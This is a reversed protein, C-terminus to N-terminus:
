DVPWCKVPGPVTKVVPQSTLLVEVPYGVVSDYHDSIQEYGFCSEMLTDKLGLKSKVSAWCKMRDRHLDCGAEVVRLYRLRFTGDEAKDVRLHDFLGGPTRKNWMSAEYASDHFIKKGTRSDFVAFPLGGDYGDDANFFVLNGKVGRFYGSWENGDIVKEGPGHSESCAPQSGHGRPAISLWEAGKQGSDYQKVTFHPFSYCSLKIRIHQEGPPNSPSPGLDVVKKQLPKDFTQTQAAPPDSNQAALWLPIALLTWFLATKRLVQRRKSGTSPTANSAMKVHRLAPTGGATALSPHSPM